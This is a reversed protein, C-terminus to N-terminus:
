IRWNAKREYVDSPTPIFLSDRRLMLIALGSLREEKMSARTWLKLRRLASFSRECSVSGVPVTLFVTLIKNIAPYFGADCKTIADCATKPKEKLPVDACKRKWRVIETDLSKEETFTFFKGYFEELDKVNADTLRNLYVPVLNQAAILGKHKFAFRTEIEEVVHDIDIFPYYVNIRYYDESTQNDYGANARHMANIEQPGHSRLKSM